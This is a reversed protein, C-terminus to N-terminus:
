NILVKEVYFDGYLPDVFYCFLMKSVPDYAYAKIDTFELVSYSFDKKSIILLTEPDSSSSNSGLCFSYDCSDVIVHKKPINAFPLEKIFKRYKSGSVYSYINASESNDEVTYCENDSCKVVSATSLRKSVTLEYEETSINYIGIQFIYKDSLKSIHSQLISDAIGTTFTITKTSLVGSSTEESVLVSSGNVVAMLINGDGTFGYSDIKNVASLSQDQMPLTYSFVGSKSIKLLIVDYKNGSRAACFYKCSGDELVYAYSTIEIDYSQSYSVGTQVNSFVGSTTMTIIYQASSSPRIMMKGNNFFCEKSYFASDGSYGSKFFDKVECNINGNIKSISEDSLDEFLISGKKIKSSDISGDAINSSSVGGEKIRFSNTSTDYELTIGDPLAKILSSYHQLGAEDLYKPQAM